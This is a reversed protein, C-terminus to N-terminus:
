KNETKKGPLIWLLLIRSHRRRIERVVRLRLISHRREIARLQLSRLFNVWRWYSGMRIQRARLQLLVAVAATAASTWLLFITPCVSFFLDQHLQKSFIFILQSVFGEAGRFPQRNSALQVRPAFFLIYVTLFCWLLALVFQCIQCLLIFVGFVLKPRCSVASPAIHQGVIFTSFTLIDYRFM